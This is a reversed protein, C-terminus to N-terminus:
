TEMEEEEEEHTGKEAGGPFSLLSGKNLQIIIDNRCFHM